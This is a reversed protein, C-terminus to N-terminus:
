RRIREGILLVFQLPLEHNKGARREVLLLYQGCGCCHGSAQHQQKLEICEGSLNVDRGDRSSKGCVALAWLCGVVM